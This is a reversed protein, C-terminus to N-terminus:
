KAALVAGPTRQTVTSASPAGAPAPGGTLPAGEVAGGASAAATGACRVTGVDAVLEDSSPVEVTVSCTGGEHVVVAAHRGPSLRTLYFRGDAGVPSVDAEAGSVRLEGYAPAAAGPGAGLTLRGTVPRVRRVDFVVLAAGRRPPAVLREVAGLDHDLPVDAARIALRNAHHPVLDPVLLRGRRDTRGIPEGELSARVGAVGPVEVLAFGDHLPRTLFLDGRMAVVAGSLTVRGAGGLDSREVAGELRAGQGQWVVEGRGERAAGGTAEVRYGLGVGRPPTQQASARARVAGGESSVALQTARRAGPSFSLLAQGEPTVRGAAAAAGGGLHLALGHPLSLHVTASARAVAGTDRWRAAGADLLLGAGRPLPLVLTAIAEAVARDQAPDLSAHAYRASQARATLTAGVRGSRWSWAAAAAGGPARDASGAAAVELEGLPSATALSGGGSARGPTAELRGGVTLRDTLGLRHRAILAPRGYDLGGGGLSGRAVGAGYSFDSLGPELLGAPAYHTSSLEQVRGFADRLVARVDGRGSALPLNALDITGPAVQERRVLVGNVYVDLSSPTLAVAQTRPQPTFTRYPDLGLDRRWSLGGVLLAGGLAGGDLHADGITWAELRAPDERVVASLGRSWRNAADRALGSSARWPGAGAGGELFLAADARESTQLAYNLFAAPDSRQELGTPRRAAGLDLERRGLLAAGADVRLAPGAEDVEFRIAPALARLSVRGAAAVEAAVELGAARLDEAPVVVDGDPLLEVLAAGRPVGNVVLDLFAQRGPAAAPPPTPAPAARAAAPAAALAAVLAAALAARRRGADAGV